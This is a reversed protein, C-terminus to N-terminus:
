HLTLGYVLELTTVWNIAGGGLDFTFPDNLGGAGTFTMEMAWVTGINASGQLNFYATTEVYM